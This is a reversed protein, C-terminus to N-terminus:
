QLEFVPQQLAKLLANLQGLQWAQYTEGAVPITETVGVVPIGNRVALDRIHQTVASDAQPNYLLVHVRHGTMLQEMALNDAPSPDNGDEIARVFGASAFVKLGLDDLLYEPVRETYAVSGWAYNTKIQTMVAELPGLSAKFVSLNQEYEVKHAPDKTALAAEMHTAVTEIHQLGYWVHPNAEPDNLGLVKAASLVMRGQNPSGALLKDMFDDYGLGNEVVIDAGAVAGADRAASEYLHPDASPDSIISTVVVHSGGLQSMINGWFNEAAVVKVRGSTDGGVGRGAVLWVWMGLGLVLLVAAGLWYSTKNFSDATRLKPRMIGLM